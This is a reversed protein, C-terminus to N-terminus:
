EEAEEKIYWDALEASRSLCKIRVSASWLGLERAAAGYSPFEGYPTVIPVCENNFKPSHKTSHEAKTVKEINDLTYGKSQDIRAMQVADPHDRGRRKIDDGWWEIWEEYTLAWELNRYRASNVIMGYEKHYPRKPTPKRGPKKRTM